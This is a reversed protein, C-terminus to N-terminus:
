ALLPHVALSLAAGLLLAGDVAVLGFRESPQFALLVLGTAVPIPLLVRAAPPALAAAIMGLLAFGRAIGLARGLGLKAAAAERDRVNSAIANATISAGVIAMVWGLHTTSSAHWAPLGVVVCVWATSVYAAKALEFRKLRRHLLGIALIPALWWLVRPGALAALLVSVGAAAVSVATLTSRHRAVFASREPSTLRDRSLDRLRDVTYVVITGCFALGVLAPDAPIEMATSSAAVLLAAAAALWLSSFALADLLSM